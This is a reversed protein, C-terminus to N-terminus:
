PVVSVNDFVATHLQAPDSSTIALGVAVTPPLNLIATPGVQKWTVGDSSLYAWFRDGVRRLGVWNNPVPDLPDAWQLSSRNRDLLGPGIQAIPSPFPVPSQLSSQHVDFLFGTPTLCMFLYGRGHDRLDRIMVGSKEPGTPDGFSCVRAIIKGDGTMTRYAFHFPEENGWRNGGSGTVTFVGAAFSTSGPFAPAPGVDAVSWGPLATSDVRLVFATSTNLWGDSATITLVATGSRGAVPMVTISRSAGAGGLIINPTPVLTPNSSEASLVLSEPPQDVDSVTFGIPGVGLGPNTTQDALDSIVPAHNVPVVTISVTALSSNELGDNAQYTLRDVGTFGPSPQYTITPPEGTLVGFIPGEVLNYAITDGDPDAAELTIGVTGDEPVSATQDSVTPPHNTVTPPQAVSVDGLVIAVSGDPATVATSVSPDGAPTTYEVENSYDSELGSSNYATVAFFYTTADALPGATTTTTNGVDLMGEYTGSQYGWYLRYGTVDADPSPDWALQVEAATALGLNVFLLLALPQLWYFQFCCRVRSPRHKRLSKGPLCFGRKTPSVDLCWHAMPNTLRSQM